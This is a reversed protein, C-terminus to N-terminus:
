ANVTERMKCIAVDTMSPEVARADFGTLEEFKDIARHALSLLGYPADYATYTYAADYATYTYATYTYATHVAAAAYEAAYAAYNAAYNAAHVAPIARLAM